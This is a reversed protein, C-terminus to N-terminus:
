AGYRKWIEQIEGALSLDKGSIANGADHTVLRITVKRWRIDIDPHHDAAEAKQALAGVFELGALFAPAEFVRVLTGKEHSWGANGALFADISAQTAKEVM